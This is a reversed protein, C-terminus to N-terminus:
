LWFLSLRRECLRYIYYAIDYLVIDICSDSNTEMEYKHKILTRYTHVNKENMRYERPLSFMFLFNLINAAAVIAASETLADAMACSVTNRIDLQSGGACGITFPM